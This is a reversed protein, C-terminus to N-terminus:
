KRLADEDGQGDSRRDPLLDRRQHELPLGPRFPVKGAATAPDKVLYELSGQGGNRKPNAPVIGHGEMNSQGALIFVKLPGAEAPRIAASALLLLFAAAVLALGSRKWLGSSLTM